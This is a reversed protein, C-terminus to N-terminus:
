RCGKPPSEREQHLHIGKCLCPLAQCQLFPEPGSTGGSCWPGPLLYNSIAYRSCHCHEKWPSKHLPSTPVQACLELTHSSAPCSQTRWGPQSSSLLVLHSTKEGPIQNSPVNLFRQIPCSTYVPDTHGRLSVTENFCPKPMEKAGAGARRARWSSWGQAARPRKTLPKSSTVSRSQSAQTFCLHGPPVM